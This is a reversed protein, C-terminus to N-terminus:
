KARAIKLLRTMGGLLAKVATAKPTQLHTVFRLARHSEGFPHRTAPGTYAGGCLIGDEAELDATVKEYAEASLDTPPGCWVMNTQPAEVVFGLEGLGAALASAADHDEALRERHRTLAHLGAAALLGAQRWGGGLYKRYHRAREIQEASGALLSGIPAGLGKSLCVSVTDFPAAYEAVSHGSAAAANWLRAGDLHTALGISRAAACCASLQALPMVEGNLTNELALVKTVAHHYLCNDTRAGALVSEATLFREGAPPVIPAIAAGAAHAAGVEWCHIHARHDCLIEGLAGGSHLRMAIQNSMTATAMFCAAEKGLLEATHAELEHVTPDDRFVDDGLPAKCMAELMASTPRTVTDSRFDYLAEPRNSSSSAVMPLRISVLLDAITAIYIRIRAAAPRRRVADAPESAHTHRHTNM